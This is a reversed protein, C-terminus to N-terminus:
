KGRRFLWVIGAAIVISVLAIIGGISRSPVTPWIVHAIALFIVTIIVAVLAILGLRKINEM